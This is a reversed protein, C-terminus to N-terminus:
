DIFMPMVNQKDLFKICEFIFEQQKKNFMFRTGITKKAWAMASNNDQKLEQSMATWDCVMEILNLQSMNNLDKHFEPHHANNAYHHEFAAKFHKKLYEKFVLKDIDKYGNQTQLYRYVYEIQKNDDKTYEVSKGQKQLWYYVTLWIFGMNEPEEFKSNDHLGAIREIENDFNGKKDMGFRLMNRYVLIKHYKTREKFYEFLGRPPTIIIDDKM